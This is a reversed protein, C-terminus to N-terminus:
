KRAYSPLSALAQQTIADSLPGQNMTRRTAETLLQQLEPPVPVTTPQQPMLKRGLLGGGIGLVTGLLNKNDALFKGIGGAGSAGGFISGSPIGMTTPIGAESLGAAGAAGLGAAGMGGPLAASTIGMTTPIAAESLGAGTAGATAAEGGVGLAGGLPGLGALGLGGLASGGIIGAIALNRGTRSKQNLNGGEDIVFDEPLPIGQANMALTLARRQEKSLDGSGMQSRLQSYWPQSRMWQNFRNIEDEGTSRNFGAPDGFPQGYQYGYPM